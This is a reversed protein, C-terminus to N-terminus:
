CCELFPPLTHLSHCHSLFLRDDSYCHYHCPRTGKENDIKTAMKEGDHTLGSGDCEGYADEEVVVKMEGSKAGDDAAGQRTGRRGDQVAGERDGRYPAAVNGGLQKEGERSDRGGVAVVSRQTTGGRTVM